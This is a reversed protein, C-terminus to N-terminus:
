RLDKGLTYWANKKKETSAVYKSSFTHIVDSYRKAVM